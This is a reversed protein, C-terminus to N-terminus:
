HASVNSTTTSSNSQVNANSTPIPPILADSVRPIRKKAITASPKPKFEATSMLHKFTGVVAHDVIIHPLKAVTPHEALLQAKTWNRSSINREEVAVGNKKLWQIALISERTPGNTWVVATKQPTTSVRSHKVHVNPKRM